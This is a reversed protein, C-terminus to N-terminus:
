KLSKGSEVIILAQLELMDREKERTEDRLRKVELGLSHLRELMALSAYEANAMFATEAASNGLKEVSALFIDLEQIRKKMDDVKSRALVMKCELVELDQGCATRSEELSDMMMEMVRRYECHYDEYATATETIIRTVSDVTVQSAQKILFCHTLDSDTM